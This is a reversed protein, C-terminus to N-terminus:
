SFVSVTGFPCSSVCNGPEEYRLFNRRLIALRATFRCSASARSRYPVTMERKVRLNVVQRTSVLMLETRLRLGLTSSGWLYIESTFPDEIRSPLQAIVHLNEPYPANNHGTTALRMHKDVTFSLSQIQELIHFVGGFVRLLFLPGSNRFLRVPTYYASPSLDYSDILYVFFGLSPHMSTNPRFYLRLPLRQAASSRRRSRSSRASPVNSLGRREAENSFDSCM